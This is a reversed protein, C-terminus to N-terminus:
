FSGGFVHRAFYVTVAATLTFAAVSVMSRASLRGMGCVGHGSTCGSGLRSGAGVLLGAVIMTPLPRELATPLAHPLVAWLLAGGALLGALFAARWSWHGARLNVVGDLIGSIGAIKGTVLLLLGASLGILTGGGLPWLISSVTV